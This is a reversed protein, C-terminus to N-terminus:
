MSWRIRESPHSNRSRSWATPRSMSSPRDHARAPDPDTSETQNEDDRRSSRRAEISRDVRSGFGRHPSDQLLLRIGPVVAFLVLDFRQDGLRRRPCAPQSFPELRKEVPEIAPKALACALSRPRVPAAQAPNKGREQENGGAANQQDHEPPEPPNM